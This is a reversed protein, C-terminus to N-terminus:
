QLLEALFDVFGGNRALFGVLLGFDQRFGQFFRGHDGIRWSVNATIAFQVDVHQFVLRCSLFDVLDIQVAEHQEETVFEVITKTEVALQFDLMRERAVALRTLNFQLLGIDFVVPAGPLAQFGTQEQHRHSNEVLRM